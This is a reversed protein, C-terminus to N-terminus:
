QSKITEMVKHYVGEMISVSKEWDYNDIVHARGAQGMKERLSSDLIFRMIADATAEVNEKEVVIGTKGDIVVEPLGGVNSVVVPLGCASAELVAVGFSESDCRSVAVYVDFTNLYENIKHHPVFGTFRVISNLGLKEVMEVLSRQQPGEGVILLNLKINNKLTENEQFKNIVEYFSRILIDIGYKSKLTKVTGITINENKNQIFKDCPAFIGLDIGFPTITLKEHSIEPCLRLVQKTMTNSTSCVGDSSLIAKKILIKHLPSNYPTKYVDNGWVSLIFPHFNSLFGLVGYGGAYHAHLIEPKILKLFYKLFPLNFFYGLKGRFPLQYVKVSKNLRHKSSPDQTILYIEHHRDSLSNVWRITHISNMSALLVIKM